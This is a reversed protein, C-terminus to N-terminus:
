ALVLITSLIVADSMPIPDGLMVNNLGILITIAAQM